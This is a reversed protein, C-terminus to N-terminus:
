RSSAQYSSSSYHFRICFFFCASYSFIYKYRYPYRSPPQSALSKHPLLPTPISSFSLPYGHPYSTEKPPKGSTEQPYRPSLEHTNSPSLHHPSYAQVAGYTTLVIRGRPVRGIGKCEHVNEGWMCHLRYPSSAQRCQGCLVHLTPSFATFARLYRFTRSGPGFQTSHLLKHRIRTRAMKAM